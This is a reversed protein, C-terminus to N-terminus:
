RSHCCDSALLVWEGSKLRACTCLNGPMHGPAKIIWFSQDGFFDMAHDFAGFNMWPGPLTEWTETKIELDFFRGDWQSSPDQFHGPSCFESTAPGFFVKAHKLAHSVPSMGLDWLVQRRHKPHQILFAWNYLRFPKPPEGAHLYHTEGIMSGGDLLCLDVYADITPLNIDKSAMTASKLLTRPLVATSYKDGIAPDSHLFLVAVGLGRM